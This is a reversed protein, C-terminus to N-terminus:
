RRALLVDSLPWGHTICPRTHAAVNTASTAAAAAAAAAAAMDVSASLRESFPRPIAECVFLHNISAILLSRLQQVFQKTLHVNGIFL